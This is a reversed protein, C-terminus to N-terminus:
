EPRLLYTLFYILLSSPILFSSSLLFPFCVFLKYLASECMSVLPEVSLLPGVSCLVFCHSCSCCKLELIPVLFCSVSSSCPVLVISQTLLFDQYMLALCSAVHYLYLSGMSTVSCQAPTLEPICATLGCTLWGGPPLSGNSGALGATVKEAVSCWRGKALVSNNQKTLPVCIHVVLKGLTTVCSLGSYCKFVRGVSRLDLARGTTGVHWGSAVHCDSLTM